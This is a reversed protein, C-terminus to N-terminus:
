AKARFQVEKMNRPPIYASADSDASFASAVEPQKLVEIVFEALSAM